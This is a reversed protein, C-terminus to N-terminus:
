LKKRKMAMLHERAYECCLHAELDDGQIGVVVELFAPVDEVADDDTETEHLKAQGVYFAERHEPRESQYSWQCVGRILFVWRRKLQM